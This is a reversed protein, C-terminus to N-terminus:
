LDLEEQAPGPEQERCTVSSLALSISAFWVNTNKLEDIVFCNKLKLKEFQLESRLINLSFDCDM